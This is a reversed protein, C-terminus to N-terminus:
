YLDFGVRVTLPLREDFKAICERLGRWPPTMLFSSDIRRNM